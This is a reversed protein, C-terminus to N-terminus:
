EGEVLGHEKWLAMLAKTDSLATDADIGYNSGLAEALQGTTFDGLESAKEWLWAATDNLSILKGFDIAELGEGIIVNEGCIKRLVFGNKQRM